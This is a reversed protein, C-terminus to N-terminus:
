IYPNNLKGYSLKLIKQFNKLASSCIMEVATAVVGAINIQKDSATYLVCSKFCGTILLM